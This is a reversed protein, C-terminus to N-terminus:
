RTPSNLSTGSLEPLSLSSVRKPRTSTTPSDLCLASDTHAMSGEKHAASRRPSTPSSLLRLLPSILRYFVRDGCTNGEECTNSSKWKGCHQRKEEKTHAKKTSEREGLTNPRKRPCKASGGEELSLSKPVGFRRRAYRAPTHQRPTAFARLDSVYQPTSMSLTLAHTKRQLAGVLLERAHKM